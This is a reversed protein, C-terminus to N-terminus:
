LYRLWWQSHTKKYHVFWRCPLYLLIVVALWIGYTIWLNYGFNIPRFWFPFNPISIEATTYGSAFFVIVLLGHLLYFHLIYYFFPVKGYVSVMDSWKARTHEFAALLLCAPGLTMALFQLSPPYKSTDLFSLLSLLLDDNSRWPTPNGYVNTFRLILFLVILSLGTILLLKKRKEASFDKHFWRGMSYGMFMAGTWPLIAYFVAILHTADLQIISAFARFFINWANGTAGTQPLSVYDLINHGFFLVIGTILVVAPSIRSLIGLLVMSCGIVWIVQLIIFNFHPNFSIGFTVITVEALILWIGRKVLFWSAENKTKKLSSLYASVGSLFVFIPACFHTIWRTFYIDPHAPNLPNDTMGTEHFFDRTHDLAMIIMVIGRLIDISNIRYTLTPKDM